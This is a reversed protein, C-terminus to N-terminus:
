PAASLGSNLWSEGMVALDKLDVVCDGNIDGSLNLQDVNYCRAPCLRLDDIYVVDRDKSALDQGSNTGNGFGISIKKVAALNVGASSFQELAIDWQTWTDSEVAYTYPHAVAASKGSADELRVRMLQEVNENVGRFALSMAKIGYKTWDQAAAFTYTAETFYPDFQNQYEFRMSKAGQQVNSTELFIYDYPPIHVINHPWKAAIAANDAYSEFDDVTLCQATTFTWTHGTVTGSPGVQDVRWQYTQGFELTGPDYSKGAPNPAVKQMAGAKGFWLQRSTAFAAEVWSLNAETSVGTAADAPSPNVAAPGDSVSFVDDFTCHYGPPEDQENQGFIGSVGSTFVKDNAGEDEWPDNGNTDVMTATRAVLPGGKYEYLSGTVYVPGSGVIDLEAYYSRAHGLGPVRVDLGLQEENRMINQMMVVKEIDIRLNAPGDQWNVHMVYTQAAVLGPAVGTVSGDPDIFYTTRAAFGCYNRSADGTVNVVAGMRVDTFVEVSGFAAGFQSGGAAASSTEDVSLYKNGNPDTKITHTFTKTLDPFCGFQWTTLDPQSGGFTELWNAQAPGSVLVILGLVAGIMVLKKARKLM